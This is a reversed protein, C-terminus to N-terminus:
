TDRLGELTGTDHCLEDEFWEKCVAADRCISDPDPEQRMQWKPSFFAVAKALMVVLRSPQKCLAVYPADLIMGALAPRRGIMSASTNLTYYLAEQGGMSHGM